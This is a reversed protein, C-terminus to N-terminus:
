LGMTIARSCSSSSMLKSWEELSLRLVRLRLEPEFLERDLLLDPDLDLLVPDLDLRELLVPELLVPELLEALEPLLDDLRLFDPLERELFELRLERRRDVPDLFREPLWVRLRELEVRLRDVPDLLREDLRYVNWKFRLLNESM